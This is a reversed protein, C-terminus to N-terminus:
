PVEEEVYTLRSPRGRVRRTGLAVVASVLAAAGGVLLLDITPIGAITTPVFVRVSGAYSLSSYPGDTSGFEVTLAASSNNGGVSAVASVTSALVTGPDVAASTAGYLVELSAGTSASVGTLLPGGASGLALRENDSYAAWSPLALQLHDGLTQWPWSSILFQFAVSDASAAAPGTPLALAFEVAVRVSGLSVALALPSTVTVDATYVLALVSANSANTATWDAASLNAVAVDVGLASVEAISGAALALGTDDSALASVVVEPVSGNFECLVMGNSWAVPEYVSRDAPSAAATAPAALLAVVAAILTLFLPIRVSRGLRRADELPTM